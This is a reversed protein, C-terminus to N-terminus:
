SLQLLCIMVVRLPSPELFLTVMEVFPLKTVKSPFTRPEFNIECSNSDSLKNCELGAASDAEITSGSIVVANSIGFGKRPLM